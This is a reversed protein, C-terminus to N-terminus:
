PTPPTTAGKITIFAMSMTKFTSPSAHLSDRHFPIERPMGGSGKRPPVPARRGKDMFAREPRSNGKGAPPLRDDVFLSTTSRYEGWLNVSGAYKGGLGEFRAIFSRRRTMPLM